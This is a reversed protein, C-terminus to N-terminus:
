IKLLTRNTIFLHNVFIRELNRLTCQEAVFKNAIESIHSRSLADALPLDKGPKHRIEIICSNIAAFKWIQRACACLIQDRGAGSQLVKQSAENDTNIVIKFNCPIKPALSLLAAVLNLAELQAIHFKKNVLASPYKEMFYHCQSYAGGGTLCSDCNIYWINTPEKRILVLGNFSDAFLTFWSIDAIINENTLIKGKHPTKRLFELIRNMFIRAPLVCRTIFQLKGVLTQVQKRSVLKPTMWTKCETIIVSLKESPIRIVMNETDIYFGLWKLNRSPATCKHIAIELGLDALLKLIYAYAEEAIKRDKAVGIFDDLYCLSFFGAKKMLYTIANTTTACALASTRCGFPPAIDFYFKNEAKIGFLPVSLPCTRLQRYARALDVSWVWCNKGDIVLQKAVDLISPLKFVCNFGQYSGKLIGANVSSGLPFSLDVIIRKDKSDKKDRTMLPSIQAWPEFPIDDFPGLLAGLATEKKIYNNIQEKDEVKSSHNKFTPTPPTIKVYDAPWGFELLDIIREFPSNRLKLRWANINLGSPLPIKAKIYNPLGTERVASYIEFYINFTNNNKIRPWYELLKNKFAYPSIPKDVFKMNNLEPINEIVELAEDTIDM